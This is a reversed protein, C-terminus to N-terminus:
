TKRISETWMYTTIHSMYVCVSVAVPGQNLTGDWLCYALLLGAVGPKVVISTAIGHSSRKVYKTNTM